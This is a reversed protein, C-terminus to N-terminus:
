KSSRLYYNINREFEQQYNDEVEKKAKDLIEDTFMQPISLTYKSDLPLREKGVRNFVRLNGYKDRAIFAGRILKRGSQKKIKVSVGKKTQRPAFHILSMPKGSVYFRWHHGDKETYYTRARIKDKLTKAKINYTKRVEKVATTRFRTGMRRVTRNAAKQFVKQNAINKFKELGTLKVDIRM